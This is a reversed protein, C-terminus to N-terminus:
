DVIKALFIFGLLVLPSLFLMYRAVVIMRSVGVPYSRKPLELDFLMKGVALSNSIGVGPKAGLKSSYVPDIAQLKRLAGRAVVYYVGVYLAALSIWDRAEM